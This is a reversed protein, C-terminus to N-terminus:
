IFKGDEMKIVIDAKDAISMDHTAVIVCYNEEHALNMLMTIINISNQTDLNGTPEDALIVDASTALARIIAIRQQEGGSLMFPFRDYYMEDMGVSQILDVAKKKAKKTSIGTLRLPFMVNELVTLLPFLNYNQYVMTVKERRYQERNMYAVNVGDYFIEGSYPLDLGAILSLLTTKGCGSKGIIAYFVGKEFTFNVKNVAIVTQYKNKYQYTVDKLLLKEMKYSVGQNESNKLYEM